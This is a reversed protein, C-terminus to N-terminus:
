HRIKHCAISLSLSFSSSSPSVFDCFWKISQFWHLQCYNIAIRLWKTTKLITRHINIGNITVHFENIRARTLGNEKHRIMEHSFFFPSFFINKEREGRSRQASETKISQQKQKKKNKERKM